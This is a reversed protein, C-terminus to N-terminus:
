QKRNIKRILAIEEDDFATGDKRFIDTFWLAPEGGEPMPKNWPYITNTKGSVLGWNIAWVNEEKLLPLINQFRSDYHRALYETCILPRGHTKLLQIWVRHKEPDTYNHYSLIDSHKVQFENLDYLDLRWIGCTLPQSPGVERAWTFVNKLLPMSNNLHDSNGPENYLDWILVRNDYKFTTLIDRVYEELWPFLKATDERLDCSPDQIWGSNHIGTGPEPQPGPVSIRNWCDDFFVFMTAMGHHDAIDLYRDLRQKFGVPDQKWAYSHLYVRLLSFGLDEAWALEREMTVTDFTEEQWMELQNVATSPQFNCGSRWGNEEFWTFAKEEPWRGSCSDSERVCGALSLILLGPILLIRASKSDKLWGVVLSGSFWVLSCVLSLTKFADFSIKCDGYLIATVLLLVLSCINIILIISRVKM